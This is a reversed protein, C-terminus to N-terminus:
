EEEKINLKKGCNPCYTPKSQLANYGMIRNIKFLLFSFLCNGCRYVDVKFEFNVPAKSLKYDFLNRMKNEGKVLDM